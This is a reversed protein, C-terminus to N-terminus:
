MLEESGKEKIRLYINNYGQELSTKTSFIEVDHNTNSLTKIFNLETTEDLVLDDDNNTCSSIFLITIIPLIYKLTKM